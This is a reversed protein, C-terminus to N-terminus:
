SKPTMSWVVRLPNSSSNPAPTPRVSADSLNVSFSITAFSRLLFFYRRSGSFPAVSLLPIILEARRAAVVATSVTVNVDSAPHPAVGTAGVEGNASSAPM